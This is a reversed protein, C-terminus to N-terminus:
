TLCLRGLGDSRKSPMAWGAAAPLEAELLAAAGTM